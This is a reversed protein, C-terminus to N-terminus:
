LKKKYRHNKVISKACKSQYRKQFKKCIDITERSVEDLPVLKFPKIIGLWEKVRKFNLNNSKLGYIKRFRIKNKSSFSQRSFTNM